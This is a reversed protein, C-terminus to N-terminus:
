DDDIVIDGNDLEKEVPPKKPARPKKVQTRAPKKPEDLVVEEEEVPTSKLSVEKAPTPVNVEQRVRNNSSAVVKGDKITEGKANVGMNGVAVTKENKARVATMDISKGKYTRHTTM